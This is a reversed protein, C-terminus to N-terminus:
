LHEEIVAVLKKGQGSKLKFVLDSDWQPDAGPGDCLVVTVTDAGVRGKKLKVSKVFKWEEVARWKKGGSKRPRKGSHILGKETVEVTCILTDSHPDMKRVKEFTTM